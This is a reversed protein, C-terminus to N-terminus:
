RIASQKDEWEKRSHEDIRELVLQSLLVEHLPTELDLAEIANLNSGLQNLLDRLDAVSDKSVSLLSFLAKVHATAILEPNDHRNCITGWAVTFNDATIPLNEILQHAEGLLHHYCIIAGSFITWHGM